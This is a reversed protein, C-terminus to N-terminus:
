NASDKLEVEETTFGVEKYFYIYGPKSLSTEGDADTMFGRDILHKKDYTLMTSNIPIYWYLDAGALAEDGVLVGDYFCKLQRIRSEDAINVLDNASSYIQYHDQSYVDHEVRIVDAADVAFEPPIEDAQTNIFTLINSDYREHNYFLIAQYRESETKPDMKRELLQEELPSKIFYDIGDITDGKTLPLGFNIIPNNNKDVRVREWNSDFFQGFQYEINNNECANLYENYTSYQKKDDALTNWEEESVPIIYQMKYGENYRYWYICYKNNFESLDDKMYSPM